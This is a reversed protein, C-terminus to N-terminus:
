YVVQKNQIIISVRKASTSLYLQNCNPGREVNANQESLSFAERDHVKSGYNVECIDRSDV